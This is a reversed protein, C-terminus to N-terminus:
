VGPRKGVTCLVGSLFRSPYGLTTDFDLFECQCLHWRGTDQLAEIAQIKRDRLLANTTAREPEQFLVLESTNGARFAANSYANVSTDWLYTDIAPPFRRRFVVTVPIAGLSGSLSM